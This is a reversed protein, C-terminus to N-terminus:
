YIFLFCSVHRRVIFCSILYNCEILGGHNTQINCRCRYARSLVKIIVYVACLRHIEAYPDDGSCYRSVAKIPKLSVLLQLKNCLFFSRRM